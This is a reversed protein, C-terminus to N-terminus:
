IHAGRLEALYRGRASHDGLKDGLSRPDKLIDEAPALDVRNTVQDETGRRVSSMEIVKEKAVNM